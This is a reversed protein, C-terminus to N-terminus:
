GVEENREVPANQGQTRGSIIMAVATVVVPAALLMQATLPEGAIAWGLLVAIVPNVYAYTSVRAPTSVRLLWVYATFAVVSGFATLYGLALLSQPSASDLDLRGWEGAVGGAVFLLTGGALMQMATSLLSAGPLQAQRSYVSGLAWALAALLLVAAGPLDVHHGQIFSAPGILLAVGAFGLVLGAAVKGTPRADRSRLWDLLVMWMPTTTIILAALGSPIRQEAWSVGGNGGLLLLGGVIVAERWHVRTPRPAGRLRAWAYLLTGAVIFRTSAVLFPPLTEVAVRIALYTSGWILYIAGFAMTLRLRFTLDPQSLM